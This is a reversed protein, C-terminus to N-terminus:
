SLSGELGLVELYRRANVDAQFPTTAASLRSPDLPHRITTAMQHALEFVDGVPVLPGYRGDALIERPGSPCDTAVVPLGVAMAEILVNPLGEWVSSLVFLTARAMYPYVNPVFGPLDFADALGEARATEMLAERQNGEGLIVLRCDCERRVIATARILTHFDKARVLRGVGLVLPRTPDGFWPHDVPEAALRDVRPPITTNPIVHVAEPALGTLRLVDDRVGSSNAIVLHNRRYANRLRSICRWRKWAPHREFRATNNTGVRMVIRAPSGTLRRALLLRRNAKDRVAVVADPHGQNLYHGLSLICRWSEGLGIPVIQIQPALERLEPIDPDNILLDIQLPYAALANILNLMVRSIGGSGKRFGYFALRQRHPSPNLNQFMDISITESPM